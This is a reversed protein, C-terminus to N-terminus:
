RPDLRRHLIICLENFMSRDMIFIILAVKDDKWHIRSALRQGVYGRRSGSNNRGILNGDFMEVVFVIQMLVRYCFNTSGEMFGQSLFKTVAENTTKM